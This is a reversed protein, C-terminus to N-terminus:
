ESCGVVLIRQISDGSVRIDVTEADFLLAAANQSTHLRNIRASHFKSLSKRARHPIAFTALQQDLTTPQIFNQISGAIRYFL